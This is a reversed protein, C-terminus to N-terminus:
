SKEKRIKSEKEWHLYRIQKLMTGWYTKMWAALDMGQCITSM